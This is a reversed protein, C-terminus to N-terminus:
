FETLYFFSYGDIGASTNNISYRSLYVVEDGLLVSISIHVIKGNILLISQHWLYRGDYHIGGSVPMILESGTEHLHTTQAHRHLSDLLIFRPLVFPKEM